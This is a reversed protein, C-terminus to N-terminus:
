WFNNFIYNIDIEVLYSRWVHRRIISDIIEAKVCGNEAALKFYKRAKKLNHPFFIGRFYLYGLLAMADASISAAKKYFYISLSHVVPFKNLGTYFAFGVYLMSLIHGQQAREFFSRQNENLNKIINKTSIENKKDNISIKMQNVLAKTENNIKDSNLDIEDLKESAKQINYPLLYGKIYQVALEIQAEVLKQKSAEKLFHIAQIRLADIKYDIDKRKKDFYLIENKEKELSKMKKNLIKYISFPNDKANKECINNWNSIIMSIDENYLYRILKDKLPNIFKVLPKIYYEPLSNLLFLDDDNLKEDNNRKRFFYFCVQEITTFNEIEDKSFLSQIDDFTIKDRLNLVDLYRTFSPLRYIDEECKFASKTRFFQIFESFTPINSNNACREILSNLEENLIVTSENEQNRKKDIIYKMIDVYKIILDKESGKNSDGLNIYDIM